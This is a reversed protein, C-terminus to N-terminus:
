HGDIIRAITERDREAQIAREAAEFEQHETVLGAVERSDLHDIHVTAEILTTVLLHVAAHYAPDNLYRTQNHETLTMAIQAHAVTRDVSPWPASPQESM